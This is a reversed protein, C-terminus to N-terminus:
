LSIDSVVENGWCDWGELKRRAFLEIRPAPANSEIFTRAIIPKTSHTTKKETLLTPIFEGRQNLNIGGRYGFLLMETRKHFGHQSWGSGKDWTIVCYYKFGWATMVELAWPLSTHTCWLFLSCKEDALNVVSLNKIETLSMTPYKDSLPSTWKGKDLVISGINWPPDAYITKYVKM